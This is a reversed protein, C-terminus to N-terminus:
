EYVVLPNIDYFSNSSGLYIVDITNEEEAYFGDVIRTAPEWLGDEEWKPIFIKNLVNLLIVSVIFFFAIKGARKM